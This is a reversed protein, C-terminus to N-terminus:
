ILGLLVKRVLNLAAMSAQFRNIERDGLFRLREACIGGETAVALYTLGVPKDQTAGTPGAIGTIGVGIDAGSAKRVGEAMQRAVQESVAGYENLTSKHVGLLRHKADNSYTIFSQELYGSSGSVDTLMKALLGGTCSEAASITKGQELLLKGVTEQLTEGDFGWINERGIRELTLGEFEKMLEEVQEQSHAHPTIRIDVGYGKALVTYFVDPNKRFLDHTRENIYSEAKGITHITCTRVFCDGGVEQRLIPLALERFMSTMEKPPGPLALLSCNPYSGEGQAPLFFGPATGWQNYLVQAPAPVLAQVENNAPMQGTGRAAFRERMMDIAKQDRVLEVGFVRAFAERNVDDETPGLGGTCVVLDAQSAAFRLLREVAQADDPAAATVVVKLGLLSLQEAIFRSNTDAYLGQLIETGTSVVAAYRLPSPCYSM